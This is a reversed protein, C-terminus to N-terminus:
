HGVVEHGLVGQGPKTGLLKTDLLRETGLNRAWGSSTWAKYGPRTGMHGIHAWAKHGVSKTDLHVVCILHM